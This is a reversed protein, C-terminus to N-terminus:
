GGKLHKNIGSGGGGGLGMTQGPVVADYNLKEHCVYLMVDAMRLNQALGRRTRRATM